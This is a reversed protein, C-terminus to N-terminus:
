GVDRPLVALRYAERLEITDLILPVEDGAELSKKPSWRQIREFNM